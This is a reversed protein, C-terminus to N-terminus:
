LLHWRRCHPCREYRKPGLNLGFLPRPYVTACEPCTADGFIMRGVQWNGASYWSMLLLMALFYLVVWLGLLTQTLGPPMREKFIAALYIPFNGLYHLGMAAVIGRVGRYRLATVTFVGHMICVMFRENIFGGLQYWPLAATKPDAWSLFEALFWMEGVGFGLGLAVGLRVFNEKTAFRRLFPILLPWLKAPEETLPASFTTLFRFAATDGMKKKVFEQAPVRVLAFALTCMPLQVAVALALTLWAARPSRWFLVGGILGLSLASTVVAAIEIGILM